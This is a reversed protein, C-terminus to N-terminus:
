LGQRKSMKRAIEDARAQAKQQKEQEEQKEHRVKYFALWETIERSTLRELLYRPHAFGLTECM